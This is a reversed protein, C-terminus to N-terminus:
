RIWFLKVALWRIGLAVYGLPGPVRRRELALSVSALDVHGKMRELQGQMSEIDSQVRGLETEVALLDKVTSARALLAQLRERLQRASALRTELDRYVDTVDQTSISRAKEDGLQALRDLSTELGEAPVRLVLHASKDGESRTDEVYGGTGRAIEEAERAAPAVDAVELELRASKIAVRDSGGGLESAAAARPAAMALSSRGAQRDAQATGACAVAGLLLLALLPRPAV